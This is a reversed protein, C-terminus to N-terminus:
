KAKEIWTSHDVLGFEKLARALRLGLATGKQEPRDSQWHHLFFM